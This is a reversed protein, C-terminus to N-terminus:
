QPEVYSGLDTWGDPIPTGPPLYAIREGHPTRVRHYHPLAGPRPPAFPEQATTEGTAETLVFTDPMEFVRECRVCRLQYAFDGDFHAHYGCQCHFDLCVDTGKWQVFVTTQESM